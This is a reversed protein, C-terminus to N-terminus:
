GGGAFGPRGGKGGMAYNQAFNLQDNFEKSTLYGGIAQNWRDSPSLKPGGIDANLIQNQATQRRNFANNMYDMYAQNLMQDMDVGARTLADDAGTGRQLGSAIYSQQIQPAIQNQFRAKAPEVYYKDFDEPSYSYMEAYPGEGKLGALINDIERKNKKQTRSRRGAGASGFYGGAINAVASFVM